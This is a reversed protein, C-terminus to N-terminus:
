DPLSAKFGAAQLALLLRGPTLTTRDYEVFAESRKRDIWVGSVGAVAQLAQRAREVGQRSNLGEIRLTPRPAQTVGVLSAQFGLRNVAAVLAEPKVNAEDFWIRAEAKELSVDASEM